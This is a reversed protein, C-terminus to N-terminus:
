CGCNDHGRELVHAYFKRYYEKVMRRSSFHAATSKISEKMYRTWGHPTGDEAAEYYLPIMEQELLEYLQAADDRDRGSDAGKRGSGFQWGNNKNYGELWWGDPISVHPVGNLAAKMGSTGSAEMPPVPNNLWADVGHVMYQGLQENYNEVFAIRGGMQPDRAFEFVRHILEHGKADEPHSKGAFLIQVPRWPDNVIKKLRDLDHFILDARKYTAFRRAFGLTLVSPDLLTGMGMIQSPDADGADGADWRDRAKHRIYNVLKLKLWYHLQWLESDPIEEIFQWIAPNDHVNIWGEGFYQNFLLRMKPELWTPLHVGNTVYDIPVDEEARDPWMCHWMRRTVEGHKQSVANVSGSLRLALATMNFGAEPNEPHRGLEMFGERDLGLLPWYGELYKEVLDFPFIDHGAPVPTHTTFLSMAAVKKRAQEFDAGDEVFERIKELLAFAAHGENLHLMSFDYGLTALMRSGGIGLLIEQLLRQTLDSTYLRRSISRVWDSNSGIDTDMLYLGVRGVSVKWIGVEVPTHNIYPVPVCVQEGDETLLRSISAADKDVKQTFNEQWGDRNIVQNLYGGPYMFGVAVMPIGLDSCEKLHDGALFGLGGAYFPLSHHLGYEASFYAIPLADTRLEFEPYLVRENLYKEFLYMVLDYHRLFNEDRTARALVGASLHKLMLDPNHNSEKWALRDLMKFLMRAQPNWSWWLNEALGGLGKIRTPLNPFDNNSLQYSPM